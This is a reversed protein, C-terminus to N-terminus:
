KMYITPSTVVGNIASSAATAPSVQYLEAIRDLTSTGPREETTTLCREGNAPCYHALEETFGSGPSLVVAGFEIFARVLGKKLAELYVARSAPVILLQVDPHITNGKIIDAAVRLDDFRGNAGSGIIVQNVSLGEVEAVPRSMGAGDIGTIQPVLNDINLEYTEDYIADKDALAPRFPMRTRGTFYRRTTTDFPCIAASVGLAASLCSLTIRESISMQAVTTGYFELAKGTLGAQMLKSTIFQIVDRAFVAPLMKGNVIIKVTKPVEMTHKGTAWVSALTPSDIGVGM